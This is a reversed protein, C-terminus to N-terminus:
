KISVRQSKANAAKRISLHLVGNKLKADIAGPDAGGPLTFQRQVSTYRRESVHRKGDRKEEREASITLVGNSVDVNVDDREFGPLDAEIEFTNQTETIDCPMAQSVRRLAAFEGNANLFREIDRHVSEFPDTWLDRSTVPALTM